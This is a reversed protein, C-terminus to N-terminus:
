SGLEMPPEGLRENIMRMPLGIVTSPDGICEFPWGAAAVEELNFGGARDRWREHAFHEDLLDITGEGFRVIAEDAFLERDKTKSDLLCVGTVVRIDRGTARELMTRADVADRPKGLVLGDVVCVTDAAVIMAGAADLPWRDREIWVQVAKFWALSACDARAKAPRLAMGGDDIRPAICCVRYGAKELLARRRPSSSALIISRREMM